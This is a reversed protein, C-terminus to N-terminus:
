YLASKIFYYNNCLVRVSASFYMFACINRFIALGSHTTSTICTYPHRFPYRHIILLHGLESIMICKCLGPSTRLARNKLQMSTQFMNASIPTLVLIVIIFFPFDEQLNM